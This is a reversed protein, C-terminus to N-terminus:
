SVDPMVYLGVAISSKIATEIAPHAVSGRSFLSQSQTCGMLGDRWSTSVRSVLSCIRAWLSTPAFIQPHFGHTDRNYVARGDDDAIFVAQLDLGLAGQEGWAGRESTLQTGFRTGCHRDCGQGAPVAAQFPTRVPHQFDNHLRGGRGRESGTGGNQIQHTGIERWWTM